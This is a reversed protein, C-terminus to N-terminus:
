AISWASASATVSGDHNTAYTWTRTRTVTGNSESESAIDGAANLTYGTSYFGSASKIAAIDTKISDADVKIAATDGKIADVGSKILLQTAEKNLASVDAAGGSGGGSVNVDFTTIYSVGQSTRVYVNVDHKENIWLNRPGIVVTAVDGAPAEAGEFVNIDNAGVNQLGGVGSAALRWSGNVEIGIM